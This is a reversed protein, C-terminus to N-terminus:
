SSINACPQSTSRSCRMARCFAIPRTGGSVLNGGRLSPTFAQSSCEGVLLAHERPQLRREGAHEIMGVPMQRPQDREEVLGADEVVRKDEHHGVVAGALFAPREAEDIRHPRIIEPGLRDRFLQPPDVVDAPRVGM